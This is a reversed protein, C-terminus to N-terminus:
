VYFALIEASNRELFTHIISTRLFPPNKAKNRFFKTTLLLWLEDLWCLCAYPLIVLWFEREQIDLKWAM